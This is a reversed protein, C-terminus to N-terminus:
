IIVRNINGSAAITYVRNITETPLGEDTITYVIDPTDLNQGGTTNANVNTGQSTDIDVGAFDKYKILSAKVSYQMQNTLKYEDLSEVLYYGKIKTPYELFIPTGFQFQFFQDKTLLLNLKVRIGLQITALTKAWNRAILGNAGNFTLQWDNPIPVNGFSEMMGVTNIDLAIGVGVADRIFGSMIYFVRPAYGTNLDIDDQDNWEKKIVSTPFDGNNLFGQITPSIIETEFVNEGDNFKDRPILEQRYRGYTRDYIRQWREIYGDSNDGKYQFAIDKAYTSLHNITPTNDLDILNTKNEAQGINKYFDNWRDITVTKLRENTTFLLNYMLKFDKLIDLCNLDPLHGNLVFEDNIDVTNVPQVKVSAKDGLRVQWKDLSPNNFESGLSFEWGLAQDIIRFTVRLGDGSNLPIDNFTYAENTNQGFVEGFLSTQPLVPQEALVNDNEDLLITQIQPPRQRIPANFNPLFDGVYETWVGNFFVAYANEGINITINYVGTRQVTFLNTNTDYASFNGELEDNYFGQMQNETVLVSNDSRTGLIFNQNWNPATESEQARDTSVLIRAADVEDESVEFNFPPDFALGQYTFDGGFKDDVNIGGIMEDSDIWTGNVQWGIKEFMRLIVSRAFLVPRRKKFYDGNSKIPEYEQNRNIIPYSIDFGQGANSTTLFEGRDVTFPESAGVTGSNNLTQWELGNLKTNDLLTAWSIVGSQYTCTYDGNLESEYAFIVGKDFNRGDVVIDAPIQGIDFVANVDSVGFLLQTNNQTPPLKFDFSFTSDRASIDDFNSISKNLVIDLEGGEGVDLLQNNVKIQVM